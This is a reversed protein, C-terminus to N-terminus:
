TSGVADFLRAAKSWCFKTARHPRPPLPPPRQRWPFPFSASTLVEAVKEPSASAAGEGPPPVHLRPGGNGEGPPALVILMHVVLM